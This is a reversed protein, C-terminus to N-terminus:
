SQFAKKNGFNRRGGRLRHRRKKAGAILQDLTAALLLHASALHFSLLLLLKLCVKKM